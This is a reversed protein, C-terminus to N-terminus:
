CRRYKQHSRFTVTAELLDHQGMAKRKNRFSFHIGANVLAGKREDAADVELAFKNLAQVLLHVDNQLLFIDPNM